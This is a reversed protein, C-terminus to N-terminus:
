SEHKTITINFHEITYVIKKQLGYNKNVGIMEFENTQHILNSLLMFKVWKSMRMLAVISGMSIGTVIHVNICWNMM